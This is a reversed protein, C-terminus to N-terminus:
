AQADHRDLELLVMSHGALILHEKIKPRQKGCATHLVERWSTGPTLAPLRFSRERRGGNVLVLATGGSEAAGREDTGECSEEPLLMGLAHLRDDEWTEGGMEHGDPHLWFVDKRGEANVHGYLFGRRRFVANNARAAFAQRFFELFSADAEDLSWDIWTREDDHCYANNNGRQTRGLEDGHSIMPVGLSLALTAAFNRRTRERARLVSRRNSPGEVGWNRSRNDDTGDRNEEGNDQNHKTEYSVLDLLTFGDHCTVFNIGGHAGARKQEFLMRSGTLCRALDGVRGEDSRWFERVLDRFRGNWETWEAPFRGLQYGVPGLDWPEAILKVRSLLPDDRIREFLKASPNMLLPDRALAPALDFRFGDVHMERVWYRLSDLVLELAPGDRTDLTNGTGTFDVYQAPDGPDSRYFAANDVGRLSYTPGTPPGEPTHNYVVDLIVEIGAAHLGRVMEKFETVQQGLGGTAFRADPALFGITAYGWYNVLGLRAGHEDIAHHQVPLLDVTTVGLSRLHSIIAPSALGLYRGRHEEPVDPHLQTLGKVHCEYIVTSSWPVEPPRDGRWDFGPDVVVCRPMWPASDAGDREGPADPCRAYLTDDWRVPGSIALAYPDVLLKAPNFLYGRAPDWPGDIRYGFLQGAGVDVVTEWVGDANIELAIRRSETSQQADDFLCLEVSTAASSALAFRTVDGELTAGLASRVVSPDM